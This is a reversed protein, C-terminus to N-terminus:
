ESEDRIDGVWELFQEQSLDSFRVKTVAFGAKTLREDMSASGSPNMSHVLIPIDKAKPNRILATVVDAGCLHRSEASRLKKDLDHDLMIGAYDDSELRALVGM